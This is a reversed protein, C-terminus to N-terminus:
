PLAAWGPWPRPGRKGQICEVRLVAQDNAPSNEAAAQVAMCTMRFERIDRFLDFGAWRTVDRGYEGVFSRYDDDSIWGFSSRKIATHM